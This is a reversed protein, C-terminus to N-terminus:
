SGLNSPSTMDLVSHDWLRSAVLPVCRRLPCPWWSTGRHHHNAPRKAPGNTPPRTLCIVVAGPITTHFYGLILASCTLDDYHAKIYQRVECPLRDLVSPSWSRVQAVMALRLSM